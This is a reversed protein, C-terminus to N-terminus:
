RQWRGFDDFNAAFLLKGNQSIKTILRNSDYEYQIQTEPGTTESLDGNTDYYYSVQKKGDLQIERVRQDSDYLLDFQLKQGRHLMSIKELLDTSGYVFRVDDDRMWILRGLADFEWEQGMPFHISASGDPRPYLLTSDGFKQWIYFIAGEVPHVLPQPFRPGEHGFSDTLWYELAAIKEDEKGEVWVM